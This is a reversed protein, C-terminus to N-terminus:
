PGAGGTDLAMALHDLLPEGGARLDPCHSAGAFRWGGDPSVAFDVSMLALRCLAALRACGAAIADPATGVVRGAVVFLTALPGAEGPVRANLEFMPAAGRSSQTYVPAPLGARGALWLWESIHRIRGCLTQPSPTGPLPGGLSRLWSMHFASLELTVYHRDADQVLVLSSQPVFLLRNLTGRVERGHLHRGDMLEAEVWAGRAGVRHVWRAGALDEATVREVPALGRARLGECAWAAAADDTECLVLFM